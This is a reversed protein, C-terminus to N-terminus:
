FRSRCTEPADMRTFERIARLIDDDTIPGSVWSLNVDQEVLGRELADLSWLADSFESPVGNKRKM